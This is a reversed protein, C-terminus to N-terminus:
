LKNFAAIDVSQVEDEWSQIEDIIDDVSVKEDEVVMGVVIKKVGFAVDELKYETKWVLGDKTIKIIKKALADYDQQPDWVKIDFLVLSKQIPEGKKKEQKKEEVKKKKIEELAGVYEGEDAFIDIDEEAAVKKPVENKHESKKHIDKKPEEKNSSAVAKWSDKVPGTYLSILAFWSWINPHTKQNPETNSFNFQDYLLADEANPLNGGLYLNDKFHNELTTLDSAETIVYKSM